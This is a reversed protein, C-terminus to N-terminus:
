RRLERVQILGEEELRRLAPLDQETLQCLGEGNVTPGPIGFRDCLRREAARDRTRFWLRVSIM